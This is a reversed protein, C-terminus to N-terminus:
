LVRPTKKKRKRCCGSEIGDESFYMTIVIITSMIRPAFIIASFSNFTGLIKLIYLQVDAVVEKQGSNWASVKFVCFTCQVNIQKQTDKHILKPQTVLQIKVSTTSM